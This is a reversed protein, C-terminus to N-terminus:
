TLSSLEKFSIAEDTVKAKDLLTEVIKEELVLGQIERLRSPESFLWKKFEDPNDYEAAMEDVQAQVRESDAQLGEKQMVEAFILSTAVRRKAAERDAETPKTMTRGAQAAIQQARGLEEMILAEPIELPNRELLADVVRASLMSRLRQKMERDLNSRVEQRFKDVSGEDIGLGKVFDEDVKPLSSEKVSGVKVEFTAPKGQLHEAPYTDPFKVDINKEDGAKAGVLGEEFGDIFSRSGLELTYDKAEGGAFAEGDIKGLFDIIVQDGDKAARDVETWVARQKRLTDITRDVDEETVECVPRKLAVGDLDPKSIEPYVEFEATYELEKGREPKVPEIKPGGAPRLSEQGVAEQFTSQILDTALENMVQKGYKQEVVKAPVKGPRFGPLKVQGSLRKIRSSFEQEVRDAPVTVKIRRGLNSTNEISVQM